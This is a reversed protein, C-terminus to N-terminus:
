DSFGSNLPRNLSTATGAPPGTGNVICASKLWSGGAPLGTPLFAVAFSSSAGPEDEITGRDQLLTPRM